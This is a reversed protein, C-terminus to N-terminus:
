SRIGGCSDILAELKMLGVKGPDREVEAFFKKMESININKM